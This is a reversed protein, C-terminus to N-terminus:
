RSQRVLAQWAPTPHLSALAAAFAPNLRERYGDDALRGIWREADDARGLALASLAAEIGSMRRDPGYAESAMVLADEHRGLAMLVGWRPGIDPSALDLEALPASLTVPWGYSAIVLGDGPYTRLLRSRGRSGAALKWWGTRREFARTRRLRRSLVTMVAVLYSGVTLALAGDVAGSAFGLVTALGAIVIMRPSRPVRPQNAPSGSPWTVTVGPLPRHLQRRVAEVDALNFVLVLGATGVLFLAPGASPVWRSPFVLAGALAGVVPFTLVVLLAALSTRYRVIRTPPRGDVADAGEYRAVDDPPPPSPFGAGAGDNAQNDAV